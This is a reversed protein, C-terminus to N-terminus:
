RSIRNSPARCECAHLTVNGRRLTGNYESGSGGSIWGELNFPIPGDAAIWHGNYKRAIHVHTGTSFGGLCSPHGIREGAHLYTGVEVSDREEIHMYFIAWGTGEYGDSDLDQVVGGGEVRVILGDAVAVVWENSQVCGSVTGPPAFDLAAWASGDGWAGHPGGTYTWIRYPEFPLQLPPQTLDAPLNPEIARSFPDEFLKSFTHHFGGESVVDRWEDALYLQSFLYQVGVTGANVGEGPNIAVGNSFLFPGEWGAYWLYYGMNLQDAAWCLQNFLGEFGERQYNMPYIEIQPQIAEKTLWRGQYELLALLLRPNVSYRAAVLEVIEAGNMISGEVEESHNLLAGRSLMVSAQLDFLHSAPGDVLESDPLIKFSPGPAQLDPAPVVLTTGVHLLNPSVLDNVAMIADVTIGYTRAIKQLTDGYQVVHYIPESRIEPEDRVPDPTPTPYSDDSGVPVPMVTLQPDLTATEVILSEDGAKIPRWTISAANSSTCAQLTSLSVIAVVYAIGSLVKRGMRM